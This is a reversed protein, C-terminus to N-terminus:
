LAPCAMVLGHAAVDDVMCGTEVISLMAAWPNPAADYEEDWAREHAAAWAAFEECLSWRREAPEAMAYREYQARTVARLARLAWQPRPTTTASAWRPYFGDRQVVRWVIREPQPAGFRAIRALWVRALEEAAIISPWCAALAVADTLTAPHPLDEPVDDPYGHEPCREDPLGAATRGEVIRGCFGCDARPRFTRGPADLAAYPLASQMALIEWAARPDTTALVWSAQLEGHEHWDLTEARLYCTAGRALHAAVVGPRIGQTLAALSVALRPRDPRLARSPDTM